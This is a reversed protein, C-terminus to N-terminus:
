DSNKEHAEERVQKKELVVLVTSLHKFDVVPTLFGSKTLNNSDHRIETIYGVTINPLYKDSITSTVIQDGQVVKDESDVLQSFRIYGDKMLELDGSVILHDSTSMVMGSLNAQDDIIAQVTAWVPGVETVIGVLGSGAMVNMDPEIGDRSGKDIVFTSFWNGADKSIVRAGIVPYDSYQENLKFLQRLESLEYKDSQLENVSLQLKTVEDKLQKNEEALETMTKMDDSRNRLWEGAKGIGKQVPVIVYGAVLNLPGSAIDTAFSLIMMGICLITLFLLVYKSQISIKNRRNGPM